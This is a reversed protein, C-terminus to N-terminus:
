KLYQTYLLHFLRCTLRRRHDVLYKFQHNRLEFQTFIQFNELIRTSGFFPWFKSATCAHKRSKLIEILVSEIM